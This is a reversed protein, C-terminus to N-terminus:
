KKKTLIDPNSWVLKKKYPDGYHTNKRSDFEKMCAHHKWHDVRCWGGPKRELTLTKNFTVIGLTKGVRFGKDKVVGTWLDRETILRKLLWTIHWVFARAYYKRMCVNTLGECLSQIQKHLQDGSWIVYFAKKKKLKKHIEYKYGLCNM